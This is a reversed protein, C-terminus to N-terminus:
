AMGPLCLSSVLDQRHWDAIRFTWIKEGLFSDVIFKNIKM